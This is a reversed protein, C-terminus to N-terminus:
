NQKQSFHYFYVLCFFFFAFSLCFSARGLLKVFVPRALCRLHLFIMKQPSVQNPNTQISSIKDFIFVSFQFCELLIIKLYTFLATPGM